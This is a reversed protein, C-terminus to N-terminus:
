GWAVVLVVVRAIVVVAIIFTSLVVFVAMGVMKIPFLPFTPINLVISLM